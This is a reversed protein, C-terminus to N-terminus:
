RWYFLIVTMLMVGVWNYGSNILWLKLPKRDYLVLSITHTAVLGLWIISIYILSHIISLNPTVKLLYAIVIAAVISGIMSVAYALGAEKQMKEMAKKDSMDYGMMKAWPKGFLMPSYWLFGLAMFVIASVIAAILNISFLYEFM